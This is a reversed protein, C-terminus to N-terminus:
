GCVCDRWVVGCLLVGDFTVGDFNVCREVDRARTGSARRYSSMVTMVCSLSLEVRVVDARLGDTDLPEPVVGSRPM